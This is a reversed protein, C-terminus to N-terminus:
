PESASSWRRPTHRQFYGESVSCETGPSAEAGLVLYQNM